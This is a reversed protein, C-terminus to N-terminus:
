ERCGECACNEEKIGVYKPVDINNEKLLLRHKRYKKQLRDYRKQLSALDDRCELEKATCHPEEM